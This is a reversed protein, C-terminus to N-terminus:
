QATAGGGVSQFAGAYEAGNITERFDAVLGPLYVIATAGSPAPTPTASPAPTPTPTPTAAVQRGGSQATVFTSMTVALATSNVQLPSFRGSFGYSTAPAGTGADGHRSVQGNFNGDNHLSGDVLSVVGNAATFSGTMRGHSDITFSVVGSEAIPAGFAQWVGSYSGQVNSQAAPVQNAGSCGATLFAATLM